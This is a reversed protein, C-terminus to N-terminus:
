RGDQLVASWPRTFGWRRGHTSSRLRRRTSLTEPRCHRSASHCVHFKAPFGPHQLLLRKRRELTGGGGEVVEIIDPTGGRNKQVALVGELHQELSCKDLPVDLDEVLPVASRDTEFSTDVQAAFMKAQGFSLCASHACDIGKSIILLVPESLTRLPQQVHVHTRAHGQKIVHQLTLKSISERVM